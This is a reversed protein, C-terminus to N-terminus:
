LAIATEVVTQADEKEELIHSYVEIVMKETDGLLQAQWFTSNILLCFVLPLVLWRSLRHDQGYQVSCPFM